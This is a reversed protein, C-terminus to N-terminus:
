NSTRASSFKVPCAHMEFVNHRTPLMLIIVLRVDPSECRINTFVLQAMQFGFHLGNQMELHNGNGDMRLGFNQITIGKIKLSNYSSEMASLCQQPQSPAFMSTVHGMSMTGVLRLFTM